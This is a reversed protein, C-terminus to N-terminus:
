TALCLRDYLNILTSDSESLYKKWAPLLRKQEDILHDHYTKVGDNNFYETKDNMRCRLEEQAALFILAHMLNSAQNTTYIHLIEHCIGVVNSKPYIETFGWEIRNDGIYSGNEIEPNLVYIEVDRDGIDLKTIDKLQELAKDGYEDWENELTYKYKETEKLAEKFLDTSFIEKFIENVLRSNKIRLEGDERMITTDLSWGAYRLDFFTFAIDKGYKAKLSDYLKQWEDPASDPETFYKLWTQHALHKKNITFTVKNM